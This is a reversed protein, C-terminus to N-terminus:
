TVARHAARIPFMHRPHVAWCRVHGPELTTAPSRQSAGAGGVFSTAGGDTDTHGAGHYGDGNSALGQLKVSM